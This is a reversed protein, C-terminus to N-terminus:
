CSTCDGAFHADLYGTLVTSLSCRLQENM